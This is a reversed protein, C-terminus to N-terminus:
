NKSAHLLYSFHFNKKEESNCVFYIVKLASLKKFISKRLFRINNLSVLNLVIGNVYSENFDLPRDIESFIWM